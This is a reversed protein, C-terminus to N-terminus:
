KTHRSAKEIQNEEKCVKIEETLGTERQNM